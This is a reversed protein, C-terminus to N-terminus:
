QLYVDPVLYQWDPHDHARIEGPRQPVFPDATLDRGNHWRCDPSGTELFALREAHGDQFAYVGDGDHWYGYAGKGDQFYNAVIPDSARIQSFARNTEAILITHSPRQITTDSRVAEDDRIRGRWLVHGNVAYSSAVDGICRLGSETYGGEGRPGNGAGRAHTPCVWVSDKGGGGVLGNEALRHRWTVYSTDSVLTRNEPLKGGNTTTEAVIGTAMQRANSLCLTLRAGERARGLVPVLISVLVGVVAIVVLLEVVTFGHHVGSRGNM